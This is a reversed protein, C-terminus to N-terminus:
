HAGEPPTSRTVRRARPADVAPEPAPLSPPANDVAADDDDADTDDDGFVHSLVPALAAFISTPGGVSARAEAWAAVAPGAVPALAEVIGLIASPQPEPRLSQMIAAMGALDPGKQSAIAALVPTLDPGRQATVLAALIPALDVPPPPPPALQRMIGALAAFRELEAGLAPAAAPAPALTPAPPGWPTGTLDAAPPRLYHPSSFDFSRARGAFSFGVSGTVKGSPGRSKVSWQGPGLISQLTAGGDRLVDPALWCVVGRRGHEADTSSVELPRGEAADALAALRDATDDPPDIPGLSFSHTM